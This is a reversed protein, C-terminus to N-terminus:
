PQQLAAFDPQHSLGSRNPAILHPNRRLYHDDLVYHYFPNSNNCGFWNGWDDRCRGYQSQGTVAEILGEDPKIRFDRGSINVPQGSVAKGATTYLPRVVG